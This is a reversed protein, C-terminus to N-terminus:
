VFPPVTEQIRQPIGNGHRGDYMEVTHPIRRLQRAGISPVGQSGEFGRVGSGGFGRVRSGEFGRVWSGM